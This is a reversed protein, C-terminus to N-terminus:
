GINVALDDALHLSQLCQRGQRRQALAVEGLKLALSLGREAQTV